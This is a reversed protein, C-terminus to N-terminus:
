PAHIHFQDGDKCRKVSGSPIGYLTEFNSIWGGSGNALDFHVRWMTIRDNDAYQLNRDRHSVYSNYPVVVNPVNETRWKGDTASYYELKTIRMKRFRGNYELGDNYVHLDVDKCADSGFLEASQEDVPLSEDVPLQEDIFEDGCAVAGLCALSLLALHHSRM